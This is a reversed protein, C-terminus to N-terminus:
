AGPWERYLEGVPPNFNMRTVRYVRRKFRWEGNIKVLDDSYTALIDMGRAGKGSSVLERITSQARAKDGDLWIMTADATQAVYDEESIKESAIGVIAARGELKFNLPAGVDWVADETYCSELVKWDRENVSYCYRDILERIAFRDAMQSDM